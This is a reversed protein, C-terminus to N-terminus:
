RLEFQRRAALAFLFVLVGSLLSQLSSVTRVILRVIDSSEFLLRFSFGETNYFDRASWVSTPRFINRASFEFAGPADTTMSIDAVSASGVGLFFIAAAFWLIFLSVLPRAFSSGFDSLRRYAAFFIGAGNRLRQTRKRRTLLEFRFFRQAMAVNRVEVAGKRAARLGAELSRLRPEFFAREFAVPPKSKPKELERKSPVYYLPGSPRPVGGQLQSARINERLGTLRAQERGKGIVGREEQEKAIKQRYAELCDEDSMAQCLAARFRDDYIVAEETLLVERKFNAGAFAAFASFADEQFYANGSLTAGAFAEAFDGHCDPWKVGNFVADQEFTAARFKIRERFECDSFDAEASFHTAGFSACLNETEEESGDGGFVCSRCRFDRAYYTRWSWFAQKFKCEILHLWEDFYSEGLQAFESVNVKQMLSRGGFASRWFNVREAVELQEFHFGAGYFSRDSLLSTLNRKQISLSQAWAKRLRVALPKESELNEGHIEIVGPFIIGDLALVGDANEADHIKKRLTGGLVKQEALSMANKSTAEGSRLVFPLHFRTYERGDPAKVLLGQEKEEAWYDQLTRGEGLSKAKLGEWSYNEAYWRDWFQKEREALM